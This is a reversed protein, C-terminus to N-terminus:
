RRRTAFRMGVTVATQNLHELEALCTSEDVRTVTASTYHDRCVFRGDPCEARLWLDVFVNQNAGGRFRVLHPVRRDETADPGSPLVEIVELALTEDFLWARFESPV